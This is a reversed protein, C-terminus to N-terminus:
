RAPVFKKSVIEQGDPSLMFEFFRKVDGAPFNKTVLVLPRSLLYRGSMVNEDTPLVGDIAVIKAGATKFALSAPSIASEDTSVYVICDHPKEIQRAPGFPVHDMAMVAFESITARESAPIETVATIGGKRGGVAKWDRIKGSFIGKLEERALTQVFNKENVYVAIADYGIVQFFPKRQKELMTLRRSTGGISVKGNMVASIGKGSGQFGVADFRIGTKQEFLKVAPLIIEEGITSSGEYTLGALAICPSLLMALLAVASKAALGKM